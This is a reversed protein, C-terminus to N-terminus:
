RYTDLLCTCIDACCLLWKLSTSLALPTQLLHCCHLLHILLARLAADKWRIYVILNEVFFLRCSFAHCCSDCSIRYICAVVQKDRVRWIGSANCSQCRVKMGDAHKQLLGRHRSNASWLARDTASIAFHVLDHPHQRLHQASPAFAGAAVYRCKLSQLNVLPRDTRKSDGSFKCTRPKHWRNSKEFRCVKFYNDLGDSETVSTMPWELSATTIIQCTLCCLIKIWWIQYVWSGCILYLCDSWQHRCAHSTTSWSLDISTEQENLSKCSLIM